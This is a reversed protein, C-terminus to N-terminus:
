DFQYAEGAAFSLPVFAGVSDGRSRAAVCPYLAAGRRRQRQLWARTAGFVRILTLPERAPKAENLALMRDLAGQCPGIRPLPQEGREYHFEAADSRLVKRVVNRSVTLERCIAKITKESHFVGSSDEGGGYRCGV